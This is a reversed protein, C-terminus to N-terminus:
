NALYYGKTCTNGNIEFNIPPSHGETLRIFVHSRQLVNIENHTEAMGFFSHWIWLDHDAVAQLFMGCEGNRGKYLGQCSFPCNKWALQMCGISGLMGPFGRAANQALIRATDEETPQRVYTPGFVAVVARCFKFVSDTSTSEAMRLYEVTTDPPAGYAICRLAATCKQVSTFGWKKICDKKYKCYDDYERMGQMIKMFLDKNM